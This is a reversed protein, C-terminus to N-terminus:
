KGNPQKIKTRAHTGKETKPLDSVIRVPEAEVTKEQIEELSRLLTLLNSTNRGGFAIKNNLWQKSYLNIYGKYEGLDTDYTVSNKKQMCWVVFDEYSPYLNNKYTLYQTIWEKKIAM